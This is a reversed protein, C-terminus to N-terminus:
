ISAIKQYRFILSTMKVRQVFDIIRNANLPSCFDDVLENSAELKKTMELKKAMAPNNMVASDDNLKLDDNIKLGDPMLKIEKALSSDETLVAKQLKRKRAIKKARPLKKVPSLTKRFLSAEIIRRLLRLIISIDDKQSRIKMFSVLYDLKDIGMVIRTINYHIYKANMIDEGYFFRIENLLAAFQDVTTIVESKLIYNSNYPFKVIDFFRDEAINVIGCFDNEETNNRRTFVRSIPEVKEKHVIYVDVSGDIRIKFPLINKQLNICPYKNEERKMYM